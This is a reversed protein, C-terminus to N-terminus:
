GMTHSSWWQEPAAPVFPLKEQYRYLHEGTIASSADASSCLIGSWAGSQPQPLSRPRHHRGQSSSSAYPTVQLRTLVGFLFVQPPQPPLHESWSYVDELPPFIKAGSDKEKKLFRKLNLFESTVVEEKLHALWSEDLTNIELQLLDKQEATLSAVWKEKNFSSPKPAAASQTTLPKPRPAGFFSTISGNGKPKKSDSASESLHDSNRKLAAPSSMVALLQPRCPFPRLTYLLALM